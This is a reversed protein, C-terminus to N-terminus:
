FSSIAEMTRPAASTLSSSSRSSRISSSSRSWSGRVLGALVFRPLKGAVSLSSAFRCLSRRLEAVSDRSHTRLEGPARCPLRRDVRIRMLSRHVHRHRALPFWRDNCRAGGSGGLHSPAALLHSHGLWPADRSTRRFRLCSLGACGDRRRTAWASRYRVAAMALVFGVMGVGIALAVSGVAFALPETFSIRIGFLVRGWILTAVFSYLGFTAMALTMPAILLPFRTPAAVLLELTGRYRERQLTRAASDSVAIWVGMAAAGVAAAVLQLESADEGYIFFISTAFFLPYVIALLGDFASRSYMKLHFMWGITLLRIVTM